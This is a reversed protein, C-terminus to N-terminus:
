QAGGQKDGGQQEERNSNNGRIEYQGEQSVSLIYTQIFIGSSCSRLNYFPGRSPRLLEALVIHHTLDPRTQDLFTHCFPFISNLFKDPLVLFELDCSIGM